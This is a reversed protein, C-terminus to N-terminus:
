HTMARGRGSMWALLEDIENSKDFIAEAGLARCRSRMDATAYNSLVVRIPPPAYSQMGRLVGL